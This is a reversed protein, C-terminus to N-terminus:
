GSSKAGGTTKAGDASKGGAQNLLGGLASLNGATEKSTLLSVGGTIGATLATSAFDLGMKSMAQMHESATKMATLAKEAAAKDNGAALELGKGLVQSMEALGTIDRFMNATALARLTEAIGAPDPLPQIQQFTAASPTLPAVNVDVDKARAGTAIPAIESPLIPIPSDKWNWFRTLDIKEAANARGLVSEAFVGNTAVAITATVPKALNASDQSRDKVWAQREQESGFHWRFGLYNGTLAVPVPDLLTGLLLDAKGGPPTYSYNAFIRSLTLEDANAWVVQSYYRRNDNLHDLVAQPVNGGRVYFGLSALYTRSGTRVTSGALGCLAAGGADETLDPAATGSAAPGFSVVGSQTTLRLGSLSGRAAAGTWYDVSLLKDGTTFDFAARQQVGSGGTDGYRSTRGPTILRISRIGADDWWVEIKTASGSDPPPKDDFPTVAERAATLLRVLAGNTLLFWFEGNAAPVIKTATVNAIPVSGAQPPAEWASSGAKVMLVKNDRTVGWIGGDPAAVM